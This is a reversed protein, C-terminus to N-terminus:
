QSEEDDVHTVALIAGFPDKLMAYIYNGDADFAEKVIAGGLEKCKEVSEKIDRVNIYVIWQPPIGANVGKAECVGGAWNGGSDKMVYDAYGHNDGMKLEKPSWGIVQAYFDKLHSANSVTLDASVISGIYYKRKVQKDM